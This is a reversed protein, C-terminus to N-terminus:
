PSVFDNSISQFVIDDATGFNKDKGASRIAFNTEQLFHIQFPTGWSDVIENPHKATRIFNLFVEKRPNEGALVRVINSNDGTPYIGFTQRYQELGAFLLKEDIRTRANPASVHNGRTSLFAMFLFWIAFPIILFVVFKGSVQWQLKNMFIKVGDVGRGLGEV